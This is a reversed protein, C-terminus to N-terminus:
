ISSPMVVDRLKPSALVVTSFTLDTVIISVISIVKVTGESFILLSKATIFFIKICFM